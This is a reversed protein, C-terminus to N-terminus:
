KQEQDDYEEEKIKCHCKRTGIDALPSGAEPYVPEMTAVEGSGGCEECVEEGNDLEDVINEEDQTMDETIPLPTIGETIVVDEGELDQIARLSTVLLEVKEMQYITLTEQLEKRIGDAIEILREKNKYINM